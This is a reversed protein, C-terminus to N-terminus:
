SKIRRGGRRTSTKPQVETEAQLEDMTKRRGSKLFEDIESKLFFLKKGKRHYPLKKLHVQSYVTCRKPHEPNYARYEDIDMWIPPEEAPEKTQTNFVKRVTDEVIQQSVVKRVSNEVLTELETPTLSITM